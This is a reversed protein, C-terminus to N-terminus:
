KSRKWCWRTSTPSTCRSSIPIPNDPFYWNTTPQQIPVDFFFESQSSNTKDTQVWWFKSGPGKTSRKNRSKNAQTTRTSTSWKTRLISIQVNRGLFFFFLNRKIKGGPRWSWAGAQVMEGLPAVRRQLWSPPSVTFFAKYTNMESNWKFLKM